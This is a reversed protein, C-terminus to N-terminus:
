DEAVYTILFPMWTTTSMTGNYRGMIVKGDPDVRLLWTSSSSGQMLAGTSERAGAGALRFGEPLTFMLAGPSSSTPSVVGSITVIGNKKRYVPLVDTSYPKYDSELTVELWGTDNLSDQVEQSLKGRTVSKDKYSDTGLNVVDNDDGDITKNTFTSESANKDDDSTNDVNGLGLDAKSLTVVDTQGNVSRVADESTDDDTDVWLKTTDSPAGTQYVIEPEADIVIDGSGLLSSNNVTKINTGSVLTDQKGTRAKDVISQARRGSITRATSATGVAIEADTIETYTTNTPTQWTNDGRLYKTGSIGSATLDTAGLTVVGQKGAVSTVLNTAPDGTDGKPGQEGEPGQIGQEGREGKDGKAGDFYDVGKIPTYGDNGTDGQIGQPGDDGKAGTDGKDGKPGKIDGVNTWTSTDDSWVYLDGSILYADGPLGSSPLESTDNLAGLINVGTGDAGDDGKDGKPGTDGKLGTDGKPGQPGEPGQPGDDGKPGPVTSDAGADGKAGTDGKPGPVTSAAGTDGKLGQPGQPGTIETLAVLDTWSGAGVYRWQIHTSNKQLQVEKGNSGPLGQIGTDGKPGIPGVPGQPGEPGVVTGIDEAFRAYTVNENEYQGNVLKKLTVVLDEESPAANTPYQSLKKAKINDM